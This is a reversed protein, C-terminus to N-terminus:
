TPTSKRARGNSSGNSRRIADAYSAAVFCRLGGASKPASGPSGYSHELGLLVSPEDSIRERKPAPPIPSTHRLAIRLQMATISFRIPATRMGKPLKSSKAKDVVDRLEQALKTIEVIPGM